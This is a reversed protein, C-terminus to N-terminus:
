TQPGKQHHIGPATHGLLTGAAKLLTAPLPSSDLGRLLLGKDSPIAVVPGNKVAAASRSGLAALLAKPWCRPHTGRVAVAIKQPDLLTLAMELRRMAPVTPTTVLVLSSASELQDRIWGGSAMVQGIEWGIDLVTLDVGAPPSDPLPTEEPVLLVQSTRAMWVRDRRGLAWANEGRGLEATAAAALGSATATCCEVVRASGSVTALALAVTTTGSQGACGIVPLVPESTTWEGTTTQARPRPPRVPLPERTRFQGDQVAHWARRLEDVGVPRPATSQTM